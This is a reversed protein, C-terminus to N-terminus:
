GGTVKMWIELADCKSHYTKDTYPDNVHHGAAVWFGREARIATVVIQTAGILGGTEYLVTTPALFARTGIGKSTRFIEETEVVGQKPYWSPEYFLVERGNLFPAVSVARDWPIEVADPDLSRMASLLKGEVVRWGVTKGGLSNVTRIPVKYSIGDRDRLFGDEPGLRSLM